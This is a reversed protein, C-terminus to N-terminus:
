STYYENLVSFFSDTTHVMRKRTVGFVDHFLRVYGIELQPKWFRWKDVRVCWLKQFVFVNGSRHILTICFQSTRFLRSLLILTLILTSVYYLVARHSFLTSLTPICLFTVHPSVTFRCCCCSLFLLQQMVQLSIYLYLIFLIKKVLVLV